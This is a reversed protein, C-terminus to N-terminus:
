HSKMQKQHTSRMTPTGVCEGLTELKSTSVSGREVFSSENTEGVNDMKESASNSLKTGDVHQDEIIELDPFNSNPLKTGDM